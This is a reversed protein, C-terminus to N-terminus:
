VYTAAGYKGRWFSGWPRRNAYVFCFDCTQFIKRFHFIGRKAYVSSFSDGWFFFRGQRHGRRGIIRRDEQAAGYQALFDDEECLLQKHELHLGLLEGVLRERVPQHGVADTIRCRHQVGLNKPSRKRRGKEDGAQLCQADLLDIQRRQVEGYTPTLRPQPPLVVLCFRASVVRLLSLSLFAFLFGHASPRLDGLCAGIACASAKRGARILSGEM